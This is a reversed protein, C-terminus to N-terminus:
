CGGFFNNQSFRRRLAQRFTTESNVADGSKSFDKKLPTNATKKVFGFKALMGPKCVEFMSNLIKSINKPWFSAHAGLIANVRFKQKNVKKKRSLFGIKLTVELFILIRDSKNKHLNQAYIARM